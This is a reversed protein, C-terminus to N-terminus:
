LTVGPNSALSALNRWPSVSAWRMARPARWRAACASVGGLHAQAAGLGRHACLRRCDTGAVKLGSSHLTPPNRKMSELHATGPGSAGRACCPATPRGMGRPLPSCPFNSNDQNQQLLQIYLSVRMEAHPPETIRPKTGPRQFDPKTAIDRNDPAQPSGPPHHSAPHTEVGDGSM